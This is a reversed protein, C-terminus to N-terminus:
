GLRRADAITPRAAPNGELQDALEHWSRANARALRALTGSCHNPVDTTLRAWDRIDVISAALQRLLTRGRENFRLAPDNRLGRLILEQVSAVHAAGARAPREPVDPSTVVAPGPTTVAVPTFDAPEAASAEPEATRKHPLAAPTGVPRCRLATDARFLRDRVDKATGVSIGALRSIERLSADPKNKIMEAAIGRGESVERRHIKGDKGVRSDMPADSGATRRREAGVTKHSLGAIDAILRDSWQPHSQVLRRAAAKREALSLPLGHAINAHVALVFAEDESGDFYKVAITEHGLEMAAALRHAGDVVRMTRRHVIIAPLPAQAEALLRVHNDNTGASARPSYGPSILEVPVHEVPVSAARALWQHAGAADVRDELTM